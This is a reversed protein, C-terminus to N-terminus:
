KALRAARSTLYRREPISLTRRAATEYEARTAKHGGALDLLHARVAHV